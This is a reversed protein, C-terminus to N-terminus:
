GSPLFVQLNFYAELRSVVILRKSVTGEIFFALSLALRDLGLPVPLPSMSLVKVIGWIGFFFYMTSHQWNMLKVWSKTERLYLHGHPGDPVFQEAM